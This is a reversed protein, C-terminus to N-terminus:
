GAHPGGKDKRWREMSLVIKGDMSTFDSIAQRSGQYAAIESLPTDKFPPEQVMKAIKRDASDSVPVTPKLVGTEYEDWRDLVFRCLHTEDGFLSPNVRLDWLWHSTGEVLFVHAATGKDCADQSLIWRLPESGYGYNWTTAVAHWTDPTQDALWDIVLPGDAVVIGPDMAYLM